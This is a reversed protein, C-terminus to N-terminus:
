RVVDRFQKRMSTEYRNRKRNAGIQYIIVWAFINTGIGFFVAMVSIIPDEVGGQARIDPFVGFHMTFWFMFAFATALVGLVTTLASNPVDPRRRVM